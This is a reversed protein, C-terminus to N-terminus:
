LDVSDIETAGGKAAYLSFSSTYAYLNLIKKGEAEKQIVSRMKRRDLFLGTDIYDSLNVRFRLGGERVETWFAKKDNKEYQAKGRQRKREKLFINSEPIELASSIAKRMATLWRTEEKSDKEYPREYLAGSVANGYYDLLLPIEPIDRNYIRFADTGIRKAWKKLYKFRKHVRNRLMEAQLETKKIAEHTM